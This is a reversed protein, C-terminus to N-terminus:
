LKYNQEICPVKVLLQTPFQSLLQPSSILKILPVPAKSLLTSKIRIAGVHGAPQYQTMGRQSEYQSIGGQYGCQASGRPCGSQNIERQDGRQALERAESDSMEDDSSGFLWDIWLSLRHAVWSIPNWASYGGPQSGAELSLERAFALAEEEDFTGNYLEALSSPHHGQSPAPSYGGFYDAHHLPGAGEFPDRFQPPTGHFGQYNPQGAGEFPGGFQPPSQTPNHFGQYGTPEEFLVSDPDFEDPIEPPPSPPPSPASAAPPARFAGRRRPTVRLRAWPSFRFPLAWRSFRFPLAWRSLWFPVPMRHRSGARSTRPIAYSELLAAQTAAEDETM